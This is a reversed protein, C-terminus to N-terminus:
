WIGYCVQVQKDILAGRLFSLCGVEVRKYSQLRKIFLIYIKIKKSLTISCYFPTYTPKSISLTPTSLHFTLFNSRFTYFLSHSRSRLKTPLPLPLPSHPTPLPHDVPLFFDLFYSSRFLFTAILFALSIKFFAVQIMFIAILFLTIIRFFFHEM